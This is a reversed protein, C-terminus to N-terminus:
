YMTRWPAREFGASAVGVAIARRCPELSVEGRWSGPVDACLGLAM